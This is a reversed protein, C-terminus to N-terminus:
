ELGELFSQNTKEDKHSGYIWWNMMDEPSTFGYHEAIIPKNKMARGMARLYAKYFKPYREKDMLIGKTTQLPCMICGVRTYGLDYLIPYKLNYKKIYDWVDETTWDLIPHLYMVKKNSKSQDYIKYNRRKMSEEARVGTVIIGEKGRGSVEKLRECCYRIVRTPPFGKQEILKFMSNRPRVRIVEPYNELIFETVEPPDVTTFHNHAIHPVGSRKVLDYVVISDKGGSFAVKYVDNEPTHEILRQMAIAEKDILEGDIGQYKLM